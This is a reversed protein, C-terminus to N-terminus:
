RDPFRYCMTHNLFLQTLLHLNTFHPRGRKEFTSYIAPLPPFGCDLNTAEMTTSDEQFCKKHTDLFLYIDRTRILLKSPANHPIIGNEDHLQLDRFFFQVAHRHSQTNTSKCSRLFFFLSIQILDATCQSLQCYPNDAAAAEMFLGLPTSKDQHTPPDQYAFNRLM